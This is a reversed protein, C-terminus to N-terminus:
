GFRTGNVMVFSFIDGQGLTIGNGLRVNFLFNESTYDKENGFLWYINGNANAMIGLSLSSYDSGANEWEITYNDGIALTLAGDPGPPNTFRALSHVRASFLLLIALQFRLFQPVLLIHFIISM